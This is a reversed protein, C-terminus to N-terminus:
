TAAENALAKTYSLLMAYGCLCNCRKKLTCATVVPSASHPIYYTPCAEHWGEILPRTFFPDSSPFKTAACRLLALSLLDWRVRQGDEQPSPSSFIVLLQCHAVDM